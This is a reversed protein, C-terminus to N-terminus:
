KSKEYAIIDEFKVVLYEVGDNNIIQGKYKEVYVVSGVCTGGNLCFECDLIENCIVIEYRDQKPLSSPMILIGKKPEESEVIKKLIVRDQLPVLNM